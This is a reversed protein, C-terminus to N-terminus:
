VFKENVFPFYILANKEASQDNVANQVYQTNKFHQDKNYAAFFFFFLNCVSLALM